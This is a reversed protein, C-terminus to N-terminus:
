EGAIQHQQVAQLTTELEGINNLADLQAWSVKGSGIAELRAQRNLREHWYERQDDEIQAHTYHTPFALWIEVLAALEREAGIMVLRTQEM